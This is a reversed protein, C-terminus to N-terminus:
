EAIIGIPNYEKSRATCTSTERRPNIHAFHFYVQLSASDEFAIVEKALVGGGGGGKLLILTSNRLDRAGGDRFPQQKM